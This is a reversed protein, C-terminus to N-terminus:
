ERRGWHLQAEDSTMGAFSTVIADHGLDLGSELSWGRDADIAGRAILQLVMMEPGGDRLRAHKLLVHLRGRQEPLVYRWENSGMAEFNSFENGDFPPLLRPIIRHWDAVENWLNGKALHNVYVVEWQNLKPEGLSAGQAFHRYREWVDDFEPRLVRYSPYPSEGSKKWNYVFRSNQIQIMRQEDVRVLQVRDPETAARLRIGEPAWRIEDGFREFADDLRPAERVTCWDVPLQSKWFWGAHATSYEPMVAFQVGLVVEIVPPADFQPSSKPM